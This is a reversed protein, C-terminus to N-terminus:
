AGPANCAPQPTATCALLQAATCPLPDRRMHVQRRETIADGAHREARRGDHIEHVGRVAAAGGHQQLRAVQQHKVASRAVLPCVPAYGRRQSRCAPRRTRGCARCRGGCRRLPPAALADRASAHQAHTVRARAPERVADRRTCLVLPLARHQRSAVAHAQRQAAHRGVHVHERVRRSADNAHRSATCVRGDRVRQQLLRLASPSGSAVAACLLAMVGLAATLATQAAPLARLSIRWSKGLRLAANEVTARCSVYRQHMTCLRRHRSRRLSIPACAHFPRSSPCRVCVARLSYSHAVRRWLARRRGTRRAVPM